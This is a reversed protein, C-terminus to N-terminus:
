LRHLVLTFFTKQFIFKIVIPSINSYVIIVIRSLQTYKTIAFSFSHSFNIVIIIWYLVIAALKIPSVPQLITSTQRLQSAKTFNRVRPLASCKCWRSVNCNSRKFTKASSWTSFALLHVIVTIDHIALCIGTSALGLALRRNM